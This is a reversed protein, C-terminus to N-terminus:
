MFASLSHKKRTLAPGADLFVHQVGAMCLVGPTLGGASSRDETEGESICQLLGDSFMLFSLSCHAMKDHHVVVSTLEIHVEHCPM